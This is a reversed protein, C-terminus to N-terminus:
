VLDILIYKILLQTNLIFLALIIIISIDTTTFYFDFSLAYLDMMMISFNFERMMYM